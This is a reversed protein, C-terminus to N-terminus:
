IPARGSSIELVRPGFQAAVHIRYVCSLTGAKFDLVLPQEGVQAAAAHLLKAVNDYAKVNALRLAGSFYVTATEPSFRVVAETERVEM